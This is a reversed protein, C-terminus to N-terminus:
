EKRLAELLLNGQIKIMKWSYGQQHLIANPLYIATRTALAILSNNITVAYDKASYDSKICGKKQGDYIVKELIADLRKGHQDLTSFEDRDYMSTGVYVDVMGLFQIIEPHSILYQFYFDFIKELRAFPVDSEKFKFAMAETTFKDFLEATIYILISEKSPFYRYITRRDVNCHRAIDSILTEKYGYDIFYAKSADLIKKRTEIRKRGM